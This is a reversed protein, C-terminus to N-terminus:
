VLLTYAPFPHAYLPFAAPTAGRAGAACLSGSVALQAAGVRPRFEPNIRHLNAAFLQELEDEDMQM